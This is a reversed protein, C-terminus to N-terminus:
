VTFSLEQPLEHKQPRGFLRGVYERVCRGVNQLTSAKLVIFCATLLVLPICVTFWVWVSLVGTGLERFNMGFFSSVFGVPVYITAIMTLKAVWEAQEIARRSEALMVNNNIVIMGSHCKNNLERAKKLAHAFDKWLEEYLHLAKRSQTGITASAKQFEQEESEVRVHQEKITIINEELRRIHAELIQMFYLLNSLTPKEQLLVPLGADLSIKKELLNLFAMESYISFKFLEALACFPYARVTAPDQSSGVENPLLFASQFDDSQPFTVSDISHYKKGLARTRPVITPYLMSWGKSMNEEGRAPWPGPPGKSLGKGADSLVVAAVTLL